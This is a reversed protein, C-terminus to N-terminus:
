KSSRQGACLILYKISISVYTPACPAALNAIEELLCLAGTVCPRYLKTTSCVLFSNNEEFM